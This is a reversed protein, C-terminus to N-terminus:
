SSCVMSAKSYEEGRKWSSTCIERMREDGTRALLNRLTTGTRTEPCAGATHERGPYALAAPQTASPATEAPEGGALQDM